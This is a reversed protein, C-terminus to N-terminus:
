GKIGSTAVGEVFHKQGIFFIILVPLISLVTAAAVLNFPVLYDRSGTDYLKQIISIGQALTYKEPSYIYLSPMYIDNYTSTFYLLTLTVFVPKSLPIMINLFSKLESSGDIRAAEFLSNPVAKFFQILLFIGFVDTAFFSTVYLPLYTDMWGLKMYAEFFPITLLEGPLLLVSMMIGFILNKYKFKYRVFGFAVFSCTMLTGIIRMFFIYMTNGFYAFIKFSEM